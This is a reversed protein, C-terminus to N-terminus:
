WSLKLGTIRGEFVMRGDVFGQSDCIIRRRRIEVAKCVLVLRAPPTVSDRFKAGDIGGFGMFTSPDNMVFHSGFAALQAASEVMLVGPFLAKAPMHGRCWWEDARVERFGVVDGSAPDLHVIGDLLAFEFRQPLIQYIQARDYLVRAFDIQSLDILTPPPM